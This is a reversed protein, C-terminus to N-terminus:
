TNYLYSWPCQTLTYLEGTIFSNKLGGNGTRLAPCGTYEQAVYALQTRSVYGLILYWVIVMGDNGRWLKIHLTRIHKKTMKSVLVEM